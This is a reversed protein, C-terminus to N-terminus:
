RVISEGPVPASQPTRRAGPPSNESNSPGCHSAPRAAGAPANCSNPRSPRPSPAPAPAPAPVPWQLDRERPTCTARSPVPAPTNSELLWLPTSYTAYHQQASLISSLSGRDLHSSTITRWDALHDHLTKADRPFTQLMLCLTSNAKYTALPYRLERATTDAGWRDWLALLDDLTHLVIKSHFLRSDPPLADWAMEHKLNRFLQELWMLAGALLSFRSFPSHLSGVIPYLETDRSILHFIFFINRLLQTVQHSTLGNSPLRPMGVASSLGLSLLYISPTLVGGNFDEKSVLHRGPKFSLSLLARSTNTVWFAPDFRCTPGLAGAFQADMCQHKVWMQFTTLAQNSNGKELAPLVAQGFALGINGPINLCGAPYIANTTNSILQLSEELRFAGWPAFALILRAPAISQDLLVDHSFRLSTSTSAQKKVALLALATRLAPGEMASSTPCPNEPALELPIFWKTGVASTTHGTISAHPDFLNASASSLTSGAFTVTVSGPPRTTAANVSSSHPRKGLILPLATAQSSPKSPTSDNGPACHAGFMQTPSPSAQPSPSRPPSANAKATTLPVPARDKTPSVTVSALSQVSSPLSKIPATVFM